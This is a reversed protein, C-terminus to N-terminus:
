EGDVKKNNEDVKNSKVEKNDVRGRKRLFYFGKRKLGALKVLFFKRCKEVYVFVYNSIGSTFKKM